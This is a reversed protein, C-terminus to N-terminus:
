VSYITPLTLHTYSVTISRLIGLSGFSEGSTSPKLFHFPIKFLILLRLMHRVGVTPLLISHFSRGRVLLGLEVVMMKYNRISQFRYFLLFSDRDKIIYKIPLLFSKILLFDFTLILIRPQVGTLNNYLLSSYKNCLPRPKKKYIFFM